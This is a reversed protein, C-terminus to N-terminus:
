VQQRVLGVGEDVATLLRQIADVAKEAFVPEGCQQCIWAPIDDLLLHYGQRNATYTAQGPKLDGKCLPCEM